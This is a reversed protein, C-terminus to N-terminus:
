KNKEKERLETAELLAKRLEALEKMATAVGEELMEKQAFKKAVQSSADEIEMQATDRDAAGETIGKDCFSKKTAESSADNELKAIMDQVLQRVKVFHDGSVGM